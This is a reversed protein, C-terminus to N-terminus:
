HFSTTTCKTPDWKNTTIFKLGFERFAPISGGALSFVIGAAVILILLSAIFLVTKTLRDSNM